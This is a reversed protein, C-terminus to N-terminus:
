PTTSNAADRIRDAIHPHSYCWLEVFPRREPSALNQQGLRQLSRATTAAPDPVLGHIAHVGYADAAREFHRSVANVAPETAFQLTAALLLLVAAAAPDTPGTIRWHTGRRAILWRSARATFWLCAFLLAAAFLIGQQIHGLVYHGLEHAFVFSLEDPPTSRVTTDWVVIRRSAGFGTVYANISTSKASARMLFIRSAPVNVGGRSAITQLQTVLAPNTDALPEFRNFLPDIVIPSLVVVLVIVPVLISWLILWWRRPARRPLLIAGAVLPTFLILTLAISKAADVLWSPWPQISIGFRLLLLHGAASLPFMLLQLLFLLAAATLFTQRTPRTTIRASLDRLRAPVGLELLLFLAAISWLMYAFHLDVSLRGFAIAKAALAPPLTYAPM